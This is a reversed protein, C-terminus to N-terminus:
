LMIDLGTYKRRISGFQIDFELCHPLFAIIVTDIDSSGIFHLRQKLRHPLKYGFDSIQYLVLKPM